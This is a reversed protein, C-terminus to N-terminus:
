DINLYLHLYLSGTVPGTHGLAHTSTYRQEEMVLLSYQHEMFYPVEQTSQPSRSEWSDNYEKFKLKTNGHMM